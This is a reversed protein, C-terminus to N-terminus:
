IPSLRYLQAGHWPVEPAFSGSCEGRDSSKWLDRVRCAGKFGLDALNVSVRAGGPGASAPRDRLNFVALYKDPSRPVDATWAVLGGRRFLQRNHESAQDVAIVEDNTLLALTPPDLKTLDAGLILPSRAISWLTILTRQEPATFNTKRRGLDITGLPLMDADPFHGPGRFPTWADLRAFQDVLAPWHDWFDDSVRWQNAHMAVETGDALPTPGPSLSLVIPRGSRDIATRIADIEAAHYPRSIDDVKVLDVGWRAYQAFVSDLYAQAGPKSMDIGYMDTNWRCVSAGDAIGAARYPTGKIPLNRAVAQRPIGRLLHLGFKLGRAHVYDALAKFGAGGASSPFRNPAPQLRGWRDMTLNAGPRYAFSRAGPEYWQIDVTLYKWGHDRLRDAMADAEARVQAETITTAFCDWSNWGM